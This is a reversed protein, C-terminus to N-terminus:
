NNEDDERPVVIEDYFVSAEKNGVENYPSYYLGAEVTIVKDPDFPQSGIPDIFEPITVPKSYQYILSVLVEWVWINEKEIEGVFKVREVKNPKDGLQYVLLTNAIAGVIKEVGEEGWYAGIRIDIRFDMSETISRIEEEAFNQEFRSGMLVITIQASKGRVTAGYERPVNPVRRVLIRDQGTFLLSITQFLRDAIVDLNIISM